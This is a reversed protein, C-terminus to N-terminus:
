GRSDMSNEDPNIKDTAKEVKEDSVPVVSSKDQLNEEQYILNKAEERAKEDAAIKKDKKDEM